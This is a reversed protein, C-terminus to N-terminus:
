RPRTRSTLRVTVPRTRSDGLAGRFLEMLSDREAMPESDDRQTAALMGMTVLNGWAAAIAYALYTDFRMTGSVLSSRRDAGGYAGSRFLIAEVLGGPARISLRPTDPSKVAM